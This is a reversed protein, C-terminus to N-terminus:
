VGTKEKVGFHELCLSVFKEKEQFFLDEAHFCDKFLEFSNNKPAKDFLAKTHWACVTPDKEGAIYLVPATIRNVIDVPKIKPLFVFGPRISFWRKLECKQLTPLWAEKKWFKNEIKYFSSPPSVAIVSSINNNKSAAILSIAAGLSFGMLFIKKYNKSAFDIVAQIDSIEKSSFTYFGSSKGHGRFDLTIVDFYASFTVSIKRFANSDKTMFWGPSIILVASFGNKYYDTAIKVNDKTKFCIEKPM